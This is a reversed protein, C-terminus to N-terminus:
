FIYALPAVLVLTFFFFLDEPKSSIEKRHTSTDKFKLNSSQPAECSSSASGIWTSFRARQRRVCARERVCERERESARERERALGRTCVCM